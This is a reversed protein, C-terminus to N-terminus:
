GLTEQQLRERDLRFIERPPESQQRLVASRKFDALIRSVSEQTVGLIDAMEQVTLLEVKDVPLGYELEALYVLLRAVRPKIGGTSFDSIWRDATLLDGHWQCLLKGLAPANGRRLSQLSRMPYYVMDVDGVAIATHEYPRGLLGELGLWQDRTYLRVIRARGNPLYSLLKVMGSRILYLRYVCDSERYIVERATCLRRKESAWPFSGASVVESTRDAAAATGRRATSCVETDIPGTGTRAM